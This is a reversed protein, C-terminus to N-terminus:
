PIFIQMMGPITLFIKIYTNTRAPCPKAAASVTKCSARCGFAQEELRDRGFISSWIATGYTQLVSVVLNHGRRLLNLVFAFAAGDLNM